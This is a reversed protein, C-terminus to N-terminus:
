QSKLILFMLVLHFTRSFTESHFTHLSPYAFACLSVRALQGDVERQDELACKNGEIMRPASANSHMSMEALWEKLNMFTDNQTLDFMLIIGTAGRYYATRIKRFRSHGMTDWKRFFFIVVENIFVSFSFPGCVIQLKVLYDGLELTRM